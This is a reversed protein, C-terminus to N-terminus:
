ETTKAEDQTAKPVDLQQVKGREPKDAQKDKGETPQAEDGQAPEEQEVAGKKDGQIPEKKVEVLVSRALFSSLGVANDDIEVVEGPAIFVGNIRILRPQVNKVLM